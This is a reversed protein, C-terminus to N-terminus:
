RAWSPPNGKRCVPQTRSDPPSTATFYGNFTEEVNPVVRITRPVLEGSKEKEVRVLFIPGIAQRNADLRITGAPSRLRIRALADMFRREGGSMDGHVREIAELAARVGDYAFIDGVHVAQERMSPFAARFERLYRVWAPAISVFPLVHGAVVGLPREGIALPYGSMVVHRSLDPQIKKYASFFSSTGQLFAMLAVGDVDRPIQRVLPSWDRIGFPGWLRKVVRGGLSCFEAVFGAVVPYGSGDDEGLTVATRWGLKHYAYAGLGASGQTLNVGFRFMNPAPDVVTRQGGSSVLFAVGPQRLAYERIVLEAVSVTPTVLVDIGEQEVLRRAEALLSTFSGNLYCGIVLEVRTGAVTVSGVGESPRAGRLKAGREVFALEAGALDQEYFTGAATSGHCDGSMGIRITKQHGGCGAAVLALLLPVAALGLIRRVPLEVRM